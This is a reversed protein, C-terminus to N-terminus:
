QRAVTTKALLVTRQETQGKQKAKQIELLTDRLISAKMIVCGALVTENQGGVWRSKVSGTFTRQAQESM